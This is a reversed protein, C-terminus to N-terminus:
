LAKVEQGPNGSVEAPSLSAAEDTGGGEDGTEEETNTGPEDDATDNETAGHPDSVAGVAEDSSDHEAAVENASAEIPGNEQALSASPSAIPVGRSVLALCGVFLGLTSLRNMSRIM